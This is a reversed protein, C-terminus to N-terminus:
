FGRKVRRLTEVAWNVWYRSSLPLDQCPLLPKPVGGFGRKFHSLGYFPHSPKANEAAIGWFNYWHFGRRKVERIVEWQLMYSTPLKRERGYSAGHRYCAMSGYVMIIAAADLTGDPLHAEAIVANDPAFAHFEKEIYGKSFRHFGHRAATADHMDNFRRLASPDSSFSVRVGERECRHVLNRHNKKMAALLADEEPRVSLLWTNEALAHIPANRFGANRFLIRHEDTDDLFPSIRIFHLGEGRAFERLFSFFEPTPHIPGYPLYLFSGRKAHTSVALSGGVLEDGEFIGFIWAREGMARYFDGYRSSQVFLTYPQKKVFADWIDTQEVTRVKTM